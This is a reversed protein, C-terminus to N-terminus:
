ESPKTFGIVNLYYKCIIATFLKYRALPKQNKLIMKSELERTFAYYNLWDHKIMRKLVFSWPFCNRILDKFSQFHRSLKGPRLESNQYFVKHPKFFREIACEDYLKKESRYEFPVSRYFNLLERDWFLFAHEYGFHTFVYSSRFIFKSLKEKIDWDEVIPNYRDSYKNENPYCKLTDKIQNTIIRLAAKSPKKFFFYKKALYEALNHNNSKAATKEVYSGGIYDGSHGPLFVADYPIIDNKKLELVAFYEQLFFMTYGNSYDRMYKEFDPNDSYTKFEITEYDIYHWDYGLTDAVSKSIEVEKTKLGYTFCIVKEYGLKKLICAILRSDFGGSLPLLATRGNLYKILRKGAELLIHESQDLLSAYSQNSFEDPLFYYDPKACFTGDLNLIIVSGARTKFIEKDLTQYGCVFGASLFGPEAEYNPSIGNKLNVLYNWDDSVTWSNKTQMFFVPFFNVIDNCILLGNHELNIFSYIGNIEKNSTEFNKNQSYKEALFAIAEEERYIMGNMDQVYGIFCFKDTRTWKYTPNGNLIIDLM